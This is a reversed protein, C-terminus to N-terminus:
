RMSPPPDPADDRGSHALFKKAIARSLIDKMERHCKLSVQFRVKFIEAEGINDIHIEENRAIGNL